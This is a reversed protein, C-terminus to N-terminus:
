DELINVFTGIDNWIKPFENVVKTLEIVDPSNTSRYITVGNLLLTEPSVTSSSLPTQSADTSGLLIPNSPSTIAYTAALMAIAKTFWGMRRQRLPREALAALDQDTARTFASATLSQEIGLEQLHGLRM